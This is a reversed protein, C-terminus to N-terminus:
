VIKVMREVWANVIERAKQAMRNRTIRYSHYGPFGPRPRNRSGVGELWWGYPVGGDNISWVDPAVRHKDVQSIYYGTQHQFVSDLQNILEFKAYDAIEETAGLIMRNRYPETLGQVTKGDLRVHLGFSNSGAM